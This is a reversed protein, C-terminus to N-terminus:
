EVVEIDGGEPRQRAETVMSRMLAAQKPSPRWSPQKAHRAISLAFGRAWDDGERMARRIVKPWDLTMMEDLERSNM